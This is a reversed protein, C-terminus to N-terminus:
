QLPAWTMSDVRFSTAKISSVHGDVFLFNASLLHRSFMAYYGKRSVDNVATLYNNSYYAVGGFKATVIGEEANWLILGKEMITISRPHLDSYKRTIYSSNGESRYYIGGKNKGTINDEGRSFQYASRYFTGTAEGVASPCMWSGGPSTRDVGDIKKKSSPKGVLLSPFSREAVGNKVNDDYPCWDHNDQVYQVMLIGAQKLNSVCYASRGKNMASNLAPLLLGALIMIIAVILLLEILTFNASRRDMKNEETSGKFTAEGKRINYCLQNMNLISRRNFCM